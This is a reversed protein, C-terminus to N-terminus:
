GYTIHWVYTSGNLDGTALTGVSGFAVTYVGKSAPDTLAATITGTSTNWLYTSGNGDATALIGGPGFALSDVGESM